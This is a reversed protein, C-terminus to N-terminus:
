GRVMYSGNVISVLGWISLSVFLLIIPGVFCYIMWWMLKRKKVLNAKEEAMFIALVIGAIVGFPILIVNLAIIVEVITNAINM